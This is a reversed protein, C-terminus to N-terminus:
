CSGECFRYGVGRVTRIYRPHEPDPELKKRLRSIFSMFNSDDFDYDNPWIQAYIQRKTFVRGKNSALFFLLDFERGTLLIPKDGITVTRNARDIAMDDCVILEGFPDAAAPNLATYRRILSNIRAMLEHIGFPKTLYDDAGLRLGAIKDTEDGKATLMLVPVNSIRRIQGLVHFGNLDPLMVDLIVLSLEKKYASVWRMGDQATYATVAVLNEQEACKKMLACLEKDDDIILIRNM